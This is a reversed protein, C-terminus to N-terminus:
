YNWNTLGRSTVSFLFPTGLYYGCGIVGENRDQCQLISITTFDPNIMM